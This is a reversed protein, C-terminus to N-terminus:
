LAARTGPTLRCAATPCVPVISTSSTVGALWPHCHTPGPYRWRRAALGRPSAPAGARGSPIGPDGCAACGRPPTAPLVRPGPSATPQALVARRAGPPRGRRGGPPAFGCGMRVRVPGARVTM